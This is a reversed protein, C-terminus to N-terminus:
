EGKLLAPTIKDSGCNSCCYAAGAGHAGVRLQLNDLRNDAHDGNIHHVTESHLLPRELYEAMVLRHQAVKFRRAHKRGMCAFPHDKRLSMDLYNGRPIPGTVLADSPAPFSEQRQPCHYRRLISGVTTHGVGISSAIARWSLGEGYGRLAGAEATTM